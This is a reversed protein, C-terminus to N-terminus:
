IPRGLRQRHIVKGVVQAFLLFDPFGVGGDGDFDSSLIPSDAPNSPDSPTTFSLIPNDQSRGLINNAVVTVEYTTGPIAETITYQTTKPNLGAAIHTWTSAGAEKWWVRYDTEVLSEDTWEVLVTTASQVITGLNTPPLPIDEPTTFSTVPNGLSIGNHNNSVVTVEYTTLPLLDMQAYSGVNPPHGEIIDPWTDLGKERSWVQFERESSCNDRWTLDVSTASTVIASLESPAAPPEPCAAGALLLTLPFIARWRQILAHRIQNHRNM